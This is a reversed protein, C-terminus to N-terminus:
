RIYPNYPDNGNSGKLEAMAKKLVEEAMKKGLKEM